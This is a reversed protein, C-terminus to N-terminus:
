LSVVVSQNSMNRMTEVIDEFTPRRRPKGAWCVDILERMNSPCESSMDALDPRAGALVLQKIDCAETGQFPVKRCTLEYLVMAYSYVDVKEDYTQTCLIEPAMWRNTGVGLTLPEASDLMRALGFDAVKMCPVDLPGTIRHEVLINLSKLDRHIICPDFHHLYNMAGAVHLSMKLKQSWTPQFGTQQHLLEFLSGGTCYEMVIKLPSQAIVVGHLSVINPHRVLCMIAIERALSEDKIGASGGVAVLHKIAVQTDRYMGRFVECTHGSGVPELWELEQINLEPCLSATSDLSGASEFCGKSGVSISSPSRKPAPSSAM